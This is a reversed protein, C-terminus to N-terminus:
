KPAEPEDPTRLSQIYATLEWIQKEPIRAGWSPMGRGRGQAISNFIRDPTSGYLWDPDRLSPGMGGGARGGHCGSCNFQQFLHYGETQATPDRGMPNALPAIDGPGPLPGIPQNIVSREVSQGHVVTARGEGANEGKPLCGAGAVCAIALALGLSHREIRM